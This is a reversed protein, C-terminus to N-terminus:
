GLRQHRSHLPTIDRQGTMVAVLGLEARGAPRPDLPEPQGHVASALLTVDHHGDTCTVPTVSVEFPAHPEASACRAVRREDYVRQLRIVVSAVAAFNDVAQLVFANRHM